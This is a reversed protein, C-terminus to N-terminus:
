LETRTRLGNIFEKLLNAQDKMPKVKYEERAIAAPHKLKLTPCRSIIKAQLAQVGLFVIGQPYYEQELETIHSSCAIIEKRTPERNFNASDLQPAIQQRIQESTPTEDIRHVLLQTLLPSTDEDIEGADKHFLDKPQCCILNTICIQFATKTYDFIQTLVRGSSGSFPVGTANETTGPAQGIFLIRIPRQNQFQRVGDYRLCVRRRGYQLACRSCDGWQNNATNPNYYLNTGRIRHGVPNQKICHHQM